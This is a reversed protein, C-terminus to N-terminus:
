AAVGYVSITTGAAINGFNNFVRFTTVASNNAWRGSAAEVLQGSASGRTLTLKHKDTASYDMITATAMISQGSNIAFSRGFLVVATYGGFGSGTASGTGYMDVASYNSGYDSNMDICLSGNVALSGNLVIVLDRYQQTINTFSVVQTASALTINAIPLYTVTPM